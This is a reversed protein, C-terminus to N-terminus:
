DSHVGCKALVKQTALQMDTGCVRSRQGRHKTYAQMIHKMEDKENVDTKKVDRIVQDLFQTMEHEPKSVYSM